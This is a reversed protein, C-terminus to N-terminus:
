KEPGEGKNYSKESLLQGKKNYKKVMVIYGEDYVHEEKLTKGVYYQVVGEITEGYKKITGDPSHTWRAIERGNKYFVETEGTTISVIEAFIKDTLMTGNEAFTRLRIMQDNGFKGEKWVAGSPYYLKYMGNKQSNIYHKEVMLQGTEYFESVDGDPIEGFLEYRKLMGDKNLVEIGYVEMGTKTKVPKDESFFSLKYTTNGEKDTGLIATKQVIKMNLKREPEKEAMDFVEM